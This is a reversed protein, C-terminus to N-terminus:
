LYKAYKKMVEDHPTLLGDSAQKLSRQIGEKVHEPLNEEVHHNEFVVKIQQLLEEDDTELLRKALEIKETQVDM